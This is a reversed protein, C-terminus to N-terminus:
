EVSTSSSPVVRSWLWTPIHIDKRQFSGGTFTRSSGLSLSLLLSLSVSSDPSPLSLPTMTQRSDKGKPFVWKGRNYEENEEPTARLFLGHGLGLWGWDEGKRLIRTQLVM